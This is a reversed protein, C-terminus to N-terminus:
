ARVARHGQRSGAVDAPRDSQGNGRPDFTIVRFHRALYAVQLKWFRSHSIAWPPLLLLTQEGQGFVEYAVRFGGSSEAFGSESPALARSAEVATDAVLTM